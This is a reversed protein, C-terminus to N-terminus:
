IVDTRLQQYLHKEATVRESIRAANVLPWTKKKNQEEQVKRFRKKGEKEGHELYHEQQMWGWVAHERSM